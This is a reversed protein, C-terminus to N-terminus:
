HYKCDSDVIEKSNDDEGKNATNSYIQGKQNCEMVQLSPSHSAPNVEPDNIGHSKAMHRKLHSLDTYSKSCYVCSYPKEGTHSRQHKRLQYPKAFLKGCNGCQHRKVLPGRPRKPPKTEPFHLYMHRKLRGGSVFTEGCKECKYPKEGTHSCRMHQKLNWARKLKLGCIECKYPTEGTHSQIHQLLLKERLFEKGCESCKHLGRGEHLRMHETLSNKWTFTKSCHPCTYVTSKDHVTMHKKLSEAQKFGHGCQNCVYPTEDCHATKEHKRLALRSRYTKSCQECPLETFHGKRHNELYMPHKFTKNCIECTSPIVTHSKMHFNLRKLEKFERGCIECVRLPKIDEHVRRQHNTLGFKSKCRKGCTPCIFLVPDLDEVPVDPLDSSNNQDMKLVDPDEISADHLDVSNNLEVINNTHKQTLEDLKDEIEDKSIFTSTQHKGPNTTEKLASRKPHNHPVKKKNNRIKVNHEGDFVNNCESNLLEKSNNDEDNHVVNNFTQNQHTDCEAAENEEESEM